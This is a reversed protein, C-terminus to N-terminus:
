NSGRGLYSRFYDINTDVTLIKPQLTIPLEPKLLIPVGLYARFYDLM